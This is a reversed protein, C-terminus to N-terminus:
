MYDLFRIMVTFVLLVTLLSSFSINMKSESSMVKEFSDAWSRVVDEPIRCM